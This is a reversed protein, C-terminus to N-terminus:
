SPNWLKGLVEAADPLLADHAYLGGLQLYQSTSLPTPSSRRENVRPLECGLVERFFMGLHEIRVLWRVRDLTMSDAQRRVHADQTMPNVKGLEFTLYDIWRAIGAGVLGLAEYYHVRESPQPQICFQDHVSIARGIPDRWVMFAIGPKFDYRDGTLFLRRIGKREAIDSIEGPSHGATDTVGAAAAALATSAIKALLPTRWSEDEAEIWATPRFM